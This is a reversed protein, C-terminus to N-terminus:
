VHSLSQVSSFQHHHTSQFFILCLFLLQSNQLSPNGNLVLPEPLPGKEALYTLLCLFTPSLIRGVLVAPGDPRLIGRLREGCDEVGFSGGLFRHMRVALKNM